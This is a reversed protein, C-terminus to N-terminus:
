KELGMKEEVGRGEGREKGRWFRGFLDMMVVMSMSEDRSISLQMNDAVCGFAVLASMM